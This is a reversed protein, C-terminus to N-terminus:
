KQIDPVWACTRGGITEFLIPEGRATTEAKKGWRHHFLWTKPFRDADAGVEVAKALVRKLAQLLSRIQAPTLAGCPTHPDIKSQYLVEDAIWNGVGAFIGQDLLTSKIARTRGAFKEAVWKWPLTELLPDPGLLSVPPLATADTLWRIRGIRRPNRYSLTEGNELLLALKEHSPADKRDRYRNLSGSMGFHLYLHGPTDFEVWLHKGRRHVGTVRRGKIKEAVEGPANQDFVIHDEAATARLITQGDLTHEALRRWTEVEPLEPM